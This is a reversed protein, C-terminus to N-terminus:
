IAFRRRVIWAAGMLGTALLPLSGPEPVASPTTGGGTGCGNIVNTDLTVAGNLAYASGCNITANTTLTISTNSLLYGQFASSTGLTASSGVVWYVSDNTGANETIVFSNSATTLASGIQIVISQDSLGGFDLTLTPTAGSLLAASDYTYVGPTLTLGGLNQGTLNATSVMGMLSNFGSLADAQATMAVGNNSYITGNVTGPPFGTISTGPYLGLDGNLVTAGTNTVTSAGLVSFSSATGLINLSDARSNTAAFCLLGFALLSVSYKM